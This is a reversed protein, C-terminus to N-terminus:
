EVILKRTTSKGKNTLYILYLGSPFSSCDINTMKADSTNIKSKYFLAGNNNFIQITIDDELDGNDLTFFSQTPNPYLKIWSEETTLSLTSSVIDSCYSLDIETYPNPDHNPDEVINELFSVKVITDVTNICLQHFNDNDNVDEISTPTHAILSGASETYVTYYQYLDAESISSSIPVVGGNWVVQITQSADTSCESIAGEIKQAFFLSPGAPLPVINQTFAGNLDILESCADEEELTFLEGVVRVEVPPNIGNDGFEGILLVTRNEGDENAPRLTACIPTHSNGLSDIIEFDSEDLSSEDIPFRFNLPMGDMNAGGPCILNIQFPMANDLGHFASVISTTDQAKLNNFGICLILIVSKFLLKQMTNKKKIQYSLSITSFNSIKICTSSTFMKQLSAPLKEILGEQL